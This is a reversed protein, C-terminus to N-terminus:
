CGFPPGLWLTDSSQRPRRPDVVSELLRTLLLFLSLFDLSLEPSRRQWSGARSEVELNRAGDFFRM